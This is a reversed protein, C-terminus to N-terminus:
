PGFMPQLGGRPPVWRGGQHAPLCVEGQHVLRASGQGLLRMRRHVLPPLPTGPVPPHHHRHPPLAPSHRSSGTCCARCCVMAVYYPFMTVNCRLRPLLMFPLMGDHCCCSPLQLMVAFRKMSRHLMAAVVHCCFVPCLIDWCCRLHFIYFLLMEWSM